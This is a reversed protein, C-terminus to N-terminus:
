EFEWEYAKGKNNVVLVWKVSQHASNKNVKIYQKMGRDINDRHFIGYKDYILAVPAGKTKAHNIASDISKDLASQLNSKPVPTKQEYFFSAVKGDPYKKKNGYSVIVFEEGKESTLEVQYGNMAAITAAEYEDIKHDRGKYYLVYGGTNNIFMSLKADYKGSALEKQYKNFSDSIGQTTSTVKRTGGSVKAM